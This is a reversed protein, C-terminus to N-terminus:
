FKFPKKFAKLKKYTRDHLEHVLKDSFPNHSWQYQEPRGLYKDVKQKM